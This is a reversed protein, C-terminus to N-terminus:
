LIHKRLVNRHRSPQEIDTHTDRALMDNLAESFGADTQLDRHLTYEGLQNKAIPASKEIRRSLYVSYLFDSQTATLMEHDFANLILCFTESFESSMLAFGRDVMRVTILDLLYSAVFRQPFTTVISNKSKMARLTEASADDLILYRNLYDYFPTWKQM